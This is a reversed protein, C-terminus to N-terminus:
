NRRFRTIGDMVTEVVKADHITYPDVEFLNRDLVVMDAYKGVEISGIKDEMRMEYANGLTYAEIIEDISLREDPQSIYADKQGEPQRTFACEINPMPHFTTLDTPYDSSLSLRGGAKKISKLPYAIAQTIEDILKITKEDPIAAFWRGTSNAIVDYKAFKEIDEPFVYSSHSCIIRMDKYGAARLRGAAELLEHVTLSGIAHVNLDLGAKAAKEGWEFLKDADMMPKIADAGPYANPMAASFNELTGDNIIKLFTCRIRDTRYKKNLKKAEGFAFEINQKNGIVGCCDLRVPCEKAEVVDILDDSMLFEAFDYNGCDVLSTLGLESCEAVFEETSIDLLSDAIYNAAGLIKNTTLSEKIYGTPNGEADRYYLHGAARDPDPTNKDVGAVELAKSNCWGCHGSSSFIAVPKDSCIEDLDAKNPGTEGFYSDTWGMGLYADIDPHADIFEKIKTKMEALGDEPSIRILGRVVISMIAHLHGDIIGPMMFKGGLDEVEAGDKAYAMADKNDGVYAIKNDKVVVAEAWPQKKNVTYIKGNTFIRVNEAM